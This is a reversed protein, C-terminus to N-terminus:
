HDEGTFETWAIALGGSPAAAISPEEADAAAGSVTRPAAFTGGATEAAVQM